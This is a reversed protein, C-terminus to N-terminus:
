LITVIVNLLVADDMATAKTNVNDFTRASFSLTSLDCMTSIGGTGMFCFVICSVIVLRKKNDPPLKDNGAVSWHWGVGFALLTQDDMIKKQAFILPLALKFPM